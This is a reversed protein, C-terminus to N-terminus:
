GAMREDADMRNGRPSDLFRRVPVYVALAFLLSMLIDPVMQRTLAWLFPAETTTLMYRYLGYVILRYLSCGTLMALLTSVLGPQVPRFLVGIFYGTIGMAFSHVGLAHGYYVIDQLLGFALGYVIASYRHAYLALFLVGVMVLMPSASGDSQWRAPVLWVALTGECMFLLMMAGVIWKNM